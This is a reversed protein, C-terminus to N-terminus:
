KEERSKAKNSAKETRTCNERVRKKKNKEGKKKIGVRQGIMDQKESKQEM